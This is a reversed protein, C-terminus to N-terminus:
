LVSLGGSEKYIRRLDGGCSVSYMGSAGGCQWRCLVVEVGCSEGSFIGPLFYGGAGFFLPASFSTSYKLGERYHVLIPMIGTFVVSILLLYVYERKEMGAALRQLLPLMVLIGLYLYLYWYANTINTQYILKFFELLDFDVGYVYWSYLYYLLSFIVIDAVIRLCRKLCKRYSDVQKLLLAGSIMLYVPVATKSAFFYAVLLVWKKSGPQQALFEGVVTHNVIVFFCALVRLLELYAIKKKDTLAEGRNM